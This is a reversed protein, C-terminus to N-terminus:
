FRCAMEERFPAGSYDSQQKWLNAKTVVQQWAADMQATRDDDLEFMAGYKCVGFLYIGYFTELISNTDAPLVLPAPKAYWGMLVLQPAWSPDPPDPIIPHPLFEICDALLRYASAPASPDAQAYISTSSPMYASWWSGSWEDKLQLMEGSTADRISEMAAFDTPMTIYANDIAQTGFTVMCRARVTEAIETEVM